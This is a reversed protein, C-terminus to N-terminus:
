RVQGTAASPMVSFYAVFYGEDISYCLLFFSFDKWQSNSRIFSSVKWNCFLFTRPVRCSFILPFIMELETDFKEHPFLITSFSNSSMFNMVCHITNSSYFLIEIDLWKSHEYIFTDATYTLNFPVYYLYLFIFKRVGQLFKVWYYNKYMLM